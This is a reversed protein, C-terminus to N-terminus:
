TMIWLQIQCMIISNKSSFKVRGEKDSFSSRKRQTQIGHYKEYWGSNFSQRTQLIFSVWLFRVSDLKTRHLSFDV